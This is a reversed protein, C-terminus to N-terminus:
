EIKTIATGMTISVLVAHLMIFLGSGIGLPIYTKVAEIFSVDKLLTGIAIGGAITLVFIILIIKLNGSIFRSTGNMAGYYDSEKLIVAKMFAAENENIVEANYEADIAM